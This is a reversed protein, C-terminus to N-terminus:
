NSKNSIIKPYKNGNLFFIRKFTMFLKFATNQFYWLYDRQLDAWLKNHGYM